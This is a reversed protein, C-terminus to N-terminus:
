CSIYLFKHINLLWGDDSLCYSNRKLSNIYRLMYFSQVNRSIFSVQLQDELDVPQTGTWPKIKPYSACDGAHCRNRNKQQLKVIYVRWPRKSIKGTQCWSCGTKTKWGWSASFFYDTQKAADGGSNETDLKGIWKAAQWIVEVAMLSFDDAATSLLQKDRKNRKHEYWKHNASSGPLGNIKEKLLVGLWVKLVNVTFVYITNLIVYM